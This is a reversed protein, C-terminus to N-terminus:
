RARRAVVDLLERRAALLGERQGHLMGPVGEGWRITDLYLKGVGNEWWWLGRHASPPLQGRELQAFSADLARQTAGPDFAFTPLRTRPSAAPAGGLILDIGGIALLYEGKMANDPAVSEPSLTEAAALLQPTCTGPRWRELQAAVELATKANNTAAVYGLLTRTPAIQEVSRRVLVEAGASADAWDANAAHLLVAYAALQHCRLLPLVPAVAGFALPTADAFFPQGLAGACLEFVGLVPESEFAARPLSLESTARELTADPRTAADTARAFPGLDVGSFRARERSVIEWGNEDAPPLPRLDSESWRPAPRDEHVLNVALWAIVSSSGLLALAFIALVAPRLRAM